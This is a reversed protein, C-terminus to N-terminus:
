GRSRDGGRRIARRRPPNVQLLAQYIASTVKWFYLGLWSIGIFYNLDAPNPGAVHHPTDPAPFAPKRRDEIM